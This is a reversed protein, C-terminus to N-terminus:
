MAIAPISVDDDDDHHQVGVSVVRAGGLSM